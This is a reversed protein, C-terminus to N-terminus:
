RRNLVRRLRGLDKSAARGTTASRCAVVVNCVMGGELSEETYADDHREGEERRPVAGRIAQRDARRCEVQIRVVIYFAYGMAAVLITVGSGYARGVSRARGQAGATRRDRYRRFRSDQSDHDEWRGAARIRPRRLGARFRAFRELGYEYDRTTDTNVGQQVIRKMMQQKLWGYRTPLAGAVM